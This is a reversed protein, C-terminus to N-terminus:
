KKSKKMENKLRNAEEQKIIMKIKYTDREEIAKILEEKIEDDETKQYSDGINKRDLNDKDILKKIKEKDNSKIAAILEDKTIREEKNQEAKKVAEKLKNAEEQTLLMKLKKSDREEIADILEDKTVVDDYLDDNTNNSHTNNYDSM